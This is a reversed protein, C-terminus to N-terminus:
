ERLDRVSKREVLETCIQTVCHYARPNRAQRVAKRVAMEGMERIPLRMTTLGPTAFAAFDLDDFGVVSVDGPIDIGNERFARMAGMSIMDNDAFFATPLDPSGKLWEMVHEYSDELSNGADVVFREELSLGSEALAMEVGQRRKPFNKGRTTGGLYGIRTHGLELLHRAATWAGTENDAIVAEFHHSRCYSDVLVIPASSSLFPEYDQERMETALFVNATGRDECILRAQELFSAKDNVDCILFERKLGHRRVQAEIGEEIKPRFGSNDVIRGTNRFVVLRIADIASPLPTVADEELQYGLDAAAAFVLESAKKSVGRKKSLANSVTAPSLGTRRAIERVGIGLDAGELSVTRIDAPVRVSFTQLYLVDSYVM